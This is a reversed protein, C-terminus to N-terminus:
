RNFPRYPLISCRSYYLHSNKKPDRYSVIQISRNRVSHSKRTGVELRRIYGPIMERRRVSSWEAIGRLSRVKYNIYRRHGAKGIEEVTPPSISRSGHRLLSISIRLLRHSTLPFKMASHAINVKLIDLREPGRKQKLQTVM